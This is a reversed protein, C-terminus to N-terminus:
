QSGGRTFASIVAHFVGLLLRLVSRANRGVEGKAISFPLLLLIFLTFAGAVVTIAVALLTLASTDFSPLIETNM